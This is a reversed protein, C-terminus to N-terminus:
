LLKVIINLIDNPLYKTLAIKIWSEKLKAEQYIKDSFYFERIKGRYKESFENICYIQKLFSNSTLNVNFIGINNLKITVLMFEHVLLVNCIDTNHGTKRLIGINEIEDFDFERAYYPYYHIKALNRFTNFVLNIDLNVISILDLVRDGNDIYFNIVDPLFQQIINQIDDGSKTLLFALAKSLFKFSEDQEWVYHNEDCGNFEFEDCYFCLKGYYICRTTVTLLRKTLDKTFTVSPNLINFIEQFKQFDKETILCDFLKFQINDSIYINNSLSLLYLISEYIINTEYSKNHYKDNIKDLVHIYTNVVYKILLGLIEAMKSKKSFYTILVDITEKSIVCNPNNDLINSLWKEPFQNLVISLSVSNSMKLSKSILKNSHRKCYKINDNFLLEFSVSKTTIASIIIDLVFTEPYYGLEFRLDYSSTMFEYAIYQKLTNCVLLEHPRTMASIILSKVIHFFQWDKPHISTLVLQVVCEHKSKVFGDMQLWGLSIHNNIIKLINLHDFQIAYDTIQYLLKLDEVKETNEPIKIEWDRMNDTNRTKNKPLNSVYDNLIKLIGLSNDESFERKYEDYVTKLLSGIFQEKNNNIKAIKWRKQLGEMKFHFARLNIYHIYYYIM